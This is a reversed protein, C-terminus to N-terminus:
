KKIFIIGLCNPGCHSSITSGAKTEIIEKFNAYKKIEDKALNILNDDCKSHTLFVTNFDVDKNNELKDKIYLEVCNELKGRYKKSTKLTGNEMQISPKIKLLNAGFNALSSCRGGRKLFELTDIVFSIDVKEKLANIKKIIEEFSYNNKAMKAAIYVLIGQGTSLSNTDIVHVNKFNEAAIRANQFCSSVKSGLSFHILKDVNKSYEKFFSEYETVNVACTSAMSNETEIIEFINDSNIEIIDAYSKNGILVQLPVISVDFEKIIDCSLDATSDTTIKINM